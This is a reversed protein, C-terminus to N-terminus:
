LAIKAAVALLPAIFTCIGWQTGGAHVVRGIASRLFECNSRKEALARRLEGQVKCKFRPAMRIGRSSVENGCYVTDLGFDQSKGEKKNRSEPGLTRDFVACAREYKNPIGRAAQERLIELSEMFLFDDITGFADDVGHENLIHVLASTLRHAIEM